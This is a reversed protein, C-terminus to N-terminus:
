RRLLLYIERRELPEFGLDRYLRWAPANRGDVSLCIGRREAATAEELVWRMAERGLGRRRVEPLLGLYTLDWEDLDPQEMVLIVGVARDPHLLLRWREPDFVGQARHGELIEEATRVGNVEPCDLSDRYTHMLTSAFLSANEPTFQQYVLRPPQVSPAPLSRLDHRLQWLHTTHQFGHRLLREAAETEDSTLQAQILKAGRAFAWNLSLSLLASECAVADPGASAQPPWLTATAGPLLLCLVAARVGDGDSQVFLGTPDLQGQEVLFLANALLREVDAPPQRQFLLRFADAREELRAPTPTPWSNM